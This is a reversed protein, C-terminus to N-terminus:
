SKLRPAPSLQREGAAGGQRMAIAQARRGNTM